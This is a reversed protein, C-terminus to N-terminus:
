ELDEDDPLVGYEMLVYDVNCDESVLVRAFDYGYVYEQMDSATELIGGEVAQDFGPNGASVGSAEVRRQVDMIWRQLLSEM